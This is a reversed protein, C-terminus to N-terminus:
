TETAVVQELLIYVLRMLLIDLNDHIDDRIMGTGSVPPHLISRELIPVM